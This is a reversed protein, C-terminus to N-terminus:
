VIQINGVKIEKGYICAEYSDFCNMQEKQFPASYKSYCAAYMGAKEAGAIDKDPNDGIFLCEEPKVKAKELCLKFIEQGPKDQGAEESTIFCDFYPALGLREVKKNQIYSTMDSGIGTYIGKEKLLGLFKEVGPEACAHELVDNWYITYMETAYPYIPKKLIELANQFRIQRNHFSPHSFGLRGGIQKQAMCIAEQLDERVVELKEVAYREVKEMAHRSCQTFAFLTDDVDFFVAKIM